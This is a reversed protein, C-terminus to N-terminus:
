SGPPTYDVSMNAAEDIQAPTLLVVTEYSSLAGTQGVTGAIAAMAEHSPADVIAYIDESGFSFYVGDVAGGVGAALKEIAEARASGGKAMVGKIGEPSYSAKILYKAMTTNEREIARRYVRFTEVSGDLVSDEVFTV